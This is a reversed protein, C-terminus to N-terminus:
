IDISMWGVIVSDSHNQPKAVSQFNNTEFQYSSWPIKLVSVPHQEELSSM